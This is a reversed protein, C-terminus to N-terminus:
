CFKGGAVILSNRIFRLFNQQNFVNKYNQLTLGQLWNPPLKAIEIPNKFSCYVMWLFPALFLIMLLGILIFYFVTSIKRKTRYTMDTSKGAM